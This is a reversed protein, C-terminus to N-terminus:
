GARHGPWAEPEKGEGRSGTWIKWAHWIDGRPQREDRASQGAGGVFGEPFTRKHDRVRSLDGQDGQQSEPDHVSLSAGCLCVWRGHAKGWGWRQDAGQQSVTGCVAARGTGQRAEGIGEEGQWPFLGQQDGDAWGAEPDPQGRDDPTRLASAGARDGPKRIGDCAERVPQSGRDVKTYIETHEYHEEEWSM